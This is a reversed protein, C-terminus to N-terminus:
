FGKMAGLSRGALSPDSWRGPRPAVAHVLEHATVRGVARSLRSLKVLERPSPRASRHLGLVRLMNRYFIYIDSPRGDMFLVAGLAEPSLGWGPGSPESPVLVVRLMLTEGDLSQIAEEEDRGRAWDIEVGLPAFIRRVESAVAESSTPYVDNPDHWVLLLRPKADDPM